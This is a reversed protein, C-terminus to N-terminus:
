FHLSKRSFRSIMLFLGAVSLFIISSPEPVTYAVLQYTYVNGAVGLAANVDTVITLTAYRNMIYYDPNSVSVFFQFSGNKSLVTGPTFGSISFYSADQGSITASLLTMNTLNGLDADPTANQITLAQTITQDKDVTGFDITSGPAVSSAYVPSVGTGTLTLNTNTANSTVSVTTSDAGRASPTYTYTRSASQNQSLSFSQSGSAPSFESGSAPGINGTLTSGSTGTNTVTVSATASSGVRVNGFNTNSASLAPSESGFNELSSFVPLPITGVNAFSVSMPGNGLNDTTHNGFYFNDIGGLDRNWFYQVQSIGYTQDQIGFFGNIYNEKPPLHSTINYTYTGGNGALTVQASWGPNGSYPDSTNVAGVIFAGVSKVPTNFVVTFYSGTSTGGGFYNSGEIPKAYGGVVSSGISATGFYSGRFQALQADYSSLYSNIGSVSTQGTEFGLMGFNHQDFSMANFFLTPSSYVAFGGWIMMLIAIFKSFYM